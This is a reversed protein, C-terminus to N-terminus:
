EKFIEGLSWATEKVSERIIRGMPNNWDTREPQIALLVVQCGLEEHLYGSLMSLPMGHTSVGAGGIQDAELLAVSGPPLDMWAADVMMVLDPQFRRILGTFNEPAPGGDVLLLRDEPLGAKKLQSILEPGAGDDGNDPSGIGLICVRPRPKSRSLDRLIRETSERWSSPSM